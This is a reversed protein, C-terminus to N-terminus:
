FWSSWSVHLNTLSFTVTWAIIKWFINLQTERQWLSKLFCKSVFTLMFCKESYMELCSFYCWCFILLFVPMEDYIVRFTHLHRITDRTRIFNKSQCSFWKQRNWNTGQRDTFKGPLLLVSKKRLACIYMILLVIM